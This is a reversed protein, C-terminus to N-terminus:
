RIESRVSANDALLTHNIIGHEYGLESGTQREAHAQSRVSMGSDTCSLWQRPRSACSTAAEQRQWDEGLRARRADEVRTQYDDLAELDPNPASTNQPTPLGGGVISRSSRPSSRGQTQAHFEAREGHGVIRRSAGIPREWPNPVEELPEIMAVPRPDRAEAVLAAAAVLLGVLQISLGLAHQDM